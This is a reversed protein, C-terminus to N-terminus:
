YRTLNDFFFLYDVVSLTRSKLLYSLSVCEIILHRLYFM